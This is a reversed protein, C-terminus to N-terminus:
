LKPSLPRRLIIRRIHPGVKGEGLAQEVEPLLGIVRSVLAQYDSETADRKEWLWRRVAFWSRFRPCSYLHFIEGLWGVLVNEAAIHGFMGEIGESPAVGISLRFAARARPAVQIEVYEFGGKTSRRRLRGFPRSAILQRDPPSDRSEPLPLVEFGRRTFEPLLQERIASVLWRRRRRSSVFDM